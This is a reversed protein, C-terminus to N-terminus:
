DCEGAADNVASEYSDAANKVERSRRRCDDSFDHRSACQALDKAASELDNAADCVVRCKGESRSCSKGLLGHVFLVQQQEEATLSKTSRKGNLVDSYLQFASERENAPEQALASGLFCLLLACSLIKM